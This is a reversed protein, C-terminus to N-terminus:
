ITKERSVEWQKELRSAALEMLEPVASLYWYTSSPSIHGMYTSLLPIRQEVAQGERYWRILTNVAFSHRLCHIRPNLAGKQKDLGIRRLALVFIGHITVHRLQGGRHGIFFNPITRVPRFQNRLRRYRKLEKVTSPHLLVQRSKNFKAERITLIGEAWDVDRDELKMAEGVRMGTVAILGLLTSYTANRLRGLTITRCAEVLRYIDNGSFIYPRARTDARRFVQDALLPTRPDVAHVYRCFLRIIGWRKAWRTPTARCNKAFDLAMDATMYDSQKMKVFAVFQTLLRESEHLRFGLARRTNLYNQLSDELTRM